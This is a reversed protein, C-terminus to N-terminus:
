MPYVNKLLFNCLMKRCYSGDRLSMTRLAVHDYGRALARLPVCRPTSLGGRVYRAPRAVFIRQIKWFFLTSM